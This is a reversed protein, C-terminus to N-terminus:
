DGWVPVPSLAYPDSAPPVIIIPRTHTSSKPRGYRQRVSALLQDRLEPLQPLRKVDPVPQSEILHTIPDYRQKWWFQRPKLTTIKAIERQWIEDMSRFTIRDADQYKIQDFEPRFLERVVRESDRYSLQGAVINRASNLLSNYLSERGEPPLTDQTLLYLDIHFQRGLRTAQEFLPNLILQFEDVVITTYHREHEPMDARGLGGAYWLNSFILSALMKATDPMLGTPLRFITFMTQDVLDRETFAPEGSLFAVVDPDNSFRGFRSLTSQRIQATNKGHAAYEYHWFRNLDADDLRLLLDNRFDSDTIFAEAHIIPLGAKILALLTHYAVRYFLVAQSTDTSFVDALAQAAENAKREPLQGARPLLPNYPTIWDDLTLDVYLIRGTLQEPFKAFLLALFNLLDLSSTGLIDIYIWGRTSLRHVFRYVDGILHTFSFQTKGAGSSAFFISVPSRADDKLFVKRKRPM